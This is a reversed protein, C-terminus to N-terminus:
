GRVEVLQFVAAKDDDIEMCEFVLAGQHEEEFRAPHEDEDTVRKIGVLKLIYQDGPIMDDVNHWATMPGLMFKAKMSPQARECSEVENM